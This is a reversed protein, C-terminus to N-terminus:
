VTRVTKALNHKEALEAVAAAMPLTMTTGDFIELLNFPIGAIVIEDLINKGYCDVLRQIILLVANPSNDIGIWKRGLSHAAAVTTGSGCFADLVTDGENSSLKIIRELLALPKQTAYGLREKDHLSLSYFDTWIDQVPVGQIEDLFQKYRPVGKPTFFIKGEDLAKNIREQKWRWHTGQPPSLLKEGFYRPKGQGAANMSVSRFRRGCEDQKNYHKAIYDADYGFYQRHYTYHKSKTYYFITDHICGLKRGDNHSYHRRWIIENNFKGGRDCFIADLIIKIYHSATSDCHVFFSGTPKLVCWIEAFRIAMPVLYALMAGKSLVKELSFITDVLRRTYRPEKRLLDLQLESSEDWEWTDVFAQSQAIDDNGVNTYIQNYNRNSNFPPDVYCLDISEDDIHKQLVELNDGYFLHNM